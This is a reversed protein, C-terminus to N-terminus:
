CEVIDFSYSSYMGSKINRIAVAASPCYATCSSTAGTSTPFSFTFSEKGILLNEMYNYEEQTLHTYKFSWSRVKSRLLFRHLVGSEDKGTDAAEIDKRSVAVEADPAVIAVGDIKFDNCLTM